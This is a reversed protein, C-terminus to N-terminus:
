KSLTTDPGIPRTGNTSAVCTNIVQLLNVRIRKNVTNNRGNVMTNLLTNLYSRLTEQSLAIHAHLPGAAVEIGGSERFGRGYGVGTPLTVQWGDTLINMTTGRPWNYKWATILESRLNPDMIEYINPVGFGTLCAKQWFRFHNAHSDWIMNGYGPNHFIALGECGIQTAHALAQHWGMLEFVHRFNIFNALDENYYLTVYPVIKQLGQDSLPIGGVGRTITFSVKSPQSVSALDTTIESDQPLHCYTAIERATNNEDIAAAGNGQQLIQLM